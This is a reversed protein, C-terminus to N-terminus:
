ELYWYTRSTEEVDYIGLDRFGIKAYLKKAPDARIDTRLIVGAFGDSRASEILAEALREGVGVEGTRLRMRRFGPHVAFTDIYLLRGKGFLYDMANTGSIEELSPKQPDRQSVRFVEYGLTHGVHRGSVTRAVFARANDRMIDIGIGLTLRLIRLNNNWPPEGFAILTLAVWQEVLDGSLDARLEEISLRRVEIKGM